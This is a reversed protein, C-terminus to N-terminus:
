LEKRMPLHLIGIDYKEKEGTPTFGLKEYFPVAHLQADVFIERAGCEKAERCLANVLKKGTGCGRESELVAIRGLKYNEECRTIRGTAVAHTEDKMVLAFRTDDNTDLDDFVASEDAGQSEVFVARRIEKVLTFEHGEYGEFILIMM